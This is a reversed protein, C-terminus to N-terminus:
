LQLFRVIQACYREFGIFAHNGGQEITTRAFHYFQLAHRYDLVEDGQQQLLWIREPHHLEPVGLERLETVHQPELLYKEGTYPNQQPGLLQQLLHHPQVAPNVVVAKHGYVEAIKTAWFGGMSSGVLGLPRDGLDALIQQLMQWTAAPTNPLAPICIQIDPLEKTLYEKMQRAKVSDPTSNFGHLYILTPSM